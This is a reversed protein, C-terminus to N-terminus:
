VLKSIQFQVEQDYHDIPETAYLVPTIPPKAGKPDSFLKKPPTPTGGGGRSLSRKLGPAAAIEISQNEIM